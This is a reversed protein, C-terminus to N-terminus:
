FTATRPRPFEPRRQREGARRLGCRAAADADAFGKRSAPPRGIVFAQRNGIFPVTYGTGGCYLEGTQLRFIGRMGHEDRIFYRFTYSHGPPIVPSRIYQEMGSVAGDVIPVDSGNWVTYSGPTYNQYWFLLLAFGVLGVVPAGVILAIGVVLWRKWGHM